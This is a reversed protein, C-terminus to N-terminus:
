AEPYLKISHIKTNTYKHINSRAVYFTGTSDRVLLPGLKASARKSRVETESLRMSNQYEESVKADIITSSSSFGGLHSVAGGGYIRWFEVAGVVLRFAAAAGGGKRRGRVRTVNVESGWCTRSSIM